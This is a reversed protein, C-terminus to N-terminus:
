DALVLTLTRAEDRTVTRVNQFGPERDPDTRLESWRRWHRRATRRPVMRGRAEQGRMADDLSVDIWLLIAPRGSLWAVRSLLRRAWTRTATDHLIIPRRGLLAVLLRSYHEAYVLPRWLRYNRRGGLFQEWRIRIDDPDRISLRHPPTSARLRHLLTTKGAGPVGAVIVLARRPLVLPPVATTGGTGSPGCAGDQGARGSKGARSPPSSDSNTV